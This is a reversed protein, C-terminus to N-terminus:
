PDGLEADAFENVAWTTDDPLTSMGSEKRFPNRKSRSAPDSTGPM